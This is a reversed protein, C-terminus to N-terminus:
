CHRQPVITMVWITQFVMTLFFMMQRLTVFLQVGINLIPDCFWVISELVNLNTQKICVESTDSVAYQCVILTLSVLSSVDVFPSMELSRANRTLTPAM